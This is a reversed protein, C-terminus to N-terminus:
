SAKKASFIATKLSSALYDLQDQSTRQDTTLTLMSGAMDTVECDCNTRSDTLLDDWHIVLGIGAEGLIDNVRDRSVGVLYVPLGMPIIGDPLEPFIPQIEPINRIATLLFSFNNRRSQRIGTWDLHEIQVKEQLDGIIVNDEEYYQEALTFLQFLDDYNGSGDFLYSRLQKRYERIIPLRRNRSPPFKSIFPLLDIDSHLYGGDYPVWKRMSNFTFNGIQRSTFGAQCNDEVIFMGDNKMGALYEIVAPPHQFGFYNILYVAQFSRIKKELDFADISLDRKVRYFEYQIGCKELTTLISPCLYSPLLIKDIGHHHLAACIVMLCAVGGNYFLIGDTSLSPQQTKLCDDYYFEGGVFM